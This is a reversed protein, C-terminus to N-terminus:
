KIVKGVLAVCLSVLGLGCAGYVVAELARVRIAMSAQDNLRDLIAEQADEIRDLRADLSLDGRRSRVVPMTETSANPDTTM